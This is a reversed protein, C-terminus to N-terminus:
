THAAPMGALQGGDVLLTSGTIMTADDSALFTIARSIDGPTAVRGVPVMAAMGQLLTQRDGFAEAVPDLMETDVYTPAVACVRIGYGKRACYLAASKTLLTVGGKTASYAALDEFGVVGALSSVNIIVGTNNGQRMTKVAHKCGLFTGTLNVAMIAQWDELSVEDIGGAVGIGACNVLIDLRGYQGTIIRMAEKWEAEQTVNLKIVVGRDGLSEATKNAAQVNVDTVVVSAGKDAFRECAARGIGSGGGTILVTKKLFTSM